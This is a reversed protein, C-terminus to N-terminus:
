TGVQTENIAQELERQRKKKRMIMLSVLALAGVIAAIGITTTDADVGPILGEQTAGTEQTKAAAVPPKPPQNDMPPPPPPPPAAAEVPPPPPPLEQQPPPPPPAAAEIPPPPPATAEVPPPPAAQTPPMPPPQMEAPPQMNTAVDTGVKATAAGAMPTQDWYKIEVGADVVSKSEVSNSAWVEKWAEPYGLLKKSLKRINDGEVTTYTKAAIGNDEFYTLLKENDTARKPSSYYVKDGPKVDRSKYSPNAKKLEALKNEGYINQSISELSDGPRAFYVTNIWNKGVKWPQAAIKQLSSSKKPASDEKKDLDTTNPAAAISTEAPTSPAETITAPTPDVAAPPTASATSDAPPTGLDVPATTDLPADALSDGGLDTTAPVPAANGGLTDEGLQDSAIADSGGAGAAAPDLNVDGSTAAAADGEGTELDEGSKKSTCSSIMAVLSLTALLTTLRMKM